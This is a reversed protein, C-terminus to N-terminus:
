PGSLGVINRPQSTRDLMEPQTTNVNQLNVLRDLPSRPRLQRPRLQTWLMSGVGQIRFGSEQVRLGSGQVRFGSGQVRFGLDWVRFELGQVRFGSGQSRLGLGRVGFGLCWVGNSEIHKM